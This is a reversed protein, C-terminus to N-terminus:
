SGLEDLGCPERELPRTRGGHLDDHRSGRVGARHRNAARSGRDGDGSVAAGDGGQRSGVEHDVAGDLPQQVSGLEALDESRAGTHEHDGVLMRLVELAEGMLGVEGATDCEALLHEVRGGAHVDGRGRSGVEAHHEVTGNAGAGTSEGGFGAVDGVPRAAEHEGEGGGARDVAGDHEGGAIEVEGEGVVHTRRDSEGDDVVVDLRDLRDVRVVWEVGLEEGGVELREPLWVGVGGAM